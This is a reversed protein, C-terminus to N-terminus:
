QEWVVLFIKPNALLLPALFPAALGAIVILLLRYWWFSTARRLRILRHYRRQKRLDVAFKQASADGGPLPPFTGGSYTDTIQM